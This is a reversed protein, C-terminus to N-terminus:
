LAAALHVATATPDVSQHYEPLLPEQFVLLNTSSAIAVQYMINSNLCM